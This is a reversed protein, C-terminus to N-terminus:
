PKARPDIDAGDLALAFRDVNRMSLLFGEPPRM